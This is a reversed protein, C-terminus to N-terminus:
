EIAWCEAEERLCEEFVGGVVVHRRLCEEEFVGGGGVHRRLCEEEEWVVGGGV